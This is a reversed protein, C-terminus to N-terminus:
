YFFRQLSVILTSYKDIDNSYYFPCEMAFDLRTKSNFILQLGPCLVAFRGSRLYSFQDVNLSYGDRVITSRAYSKSNVEMYVNFNLDNYSRYVRPFLLYGTSFHLNMANGPNFSIAGRDSGERYSFFTLVGGTLSMAFKRSLATFILGTGLASNDYPSPFADLHISASNSIEGYLAIRFHKNRRDHSYIRLKSYLHLGEVSYSYDSSVSKHNHYDNYYANLDDPFSTVHFNSGAATLMVTLRSGAGYLLRIMERHGLTKYKYHYHGSLRVGLIGKPMTSAPESLPFLEQSQLSDTMLVFVLLLTRFLWLITPSGPAQFIGSYHRLAISISGTLNWM